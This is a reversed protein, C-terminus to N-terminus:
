QLCEGTTGGGCACCMQESSFYNDGYLDDFKGCDSPNEIYYKCTGGNTGTSSLISVCGGSVCALCCMWWPSITM